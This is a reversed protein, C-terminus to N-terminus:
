SHRLSFNNKVTHKSFYIINVNEASHKEVLYNKLIINKINKVFFNDNIFFYYKIIYNRHFNCQELTFRSFM